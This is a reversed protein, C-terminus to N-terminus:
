TSPTAPDRSPVDADEDSGSPVEKLQRAPPDLFQVHNAVVFLRQARKGHPDTWENHRLRGEVAVRRGRTLYRAVTKAVRDWAEITVFDAGDGPRDVALRFTAVATGDNLTTSRPDHTARGILHVSNM